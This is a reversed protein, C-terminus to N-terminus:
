HAKILPLELLDSFRDIFFDAKAGEDFNFAITKIGVACAGELESIDHGVFAAQDPSLGLQRLAAYYIDPEPKQVGIDKSSIISDWVHAFGGREFWSLKTQISNSTDTIIGLLFGQNKLSILTDRVGEFFHIDLNEEELIKKGRQMQVPDDVGLMHLYAEYYENQDIQGNFAQRILSEKEASYDQTRDHGLEKLFRAFGDGKNPRHYLIDGADFLLARIKSPPMIEPKAIEAKLIDLMETMSGIIADPTAGNDEEGHEFDHQIQIALRFGAKKAGLIDRAVRDGVYVCTSTPVNMLRAAYHFISPDPKRIGFESSLVVPDFFEKIKYKTLNAPVQGRSIVNSILGIKLGLKQIAKLVEPVESRMERRYYRTEIYTMLDEAIINIKAPDCSFDKLIFERWVRQPSYEVLSQLRFDHYRQLGSSVVELLEEDSVGLYVGAGELIKQIGATAKLRLEHTYGFTEITGGMDFFVARIAM